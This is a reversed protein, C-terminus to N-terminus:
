GVALTRGDASFVLPCNWSLGSRDAQGFRGVEKGSAVEHFTVLGALLKGDPSTTIAHASDAPIVRALKGEPVTWLHVKQNVGSTAVLKGDAVFAIGQTWQYNSAEGQRRITGCCESKDVDWLYVLPIEEKSNWPKWALTALLKGDPSLRLYQSQKPGK